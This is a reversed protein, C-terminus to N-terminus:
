INGLEYEKEWQQCETYYEQIDAEIKTKNLHYYALGLYIQGLSLHPYEQAIEEASMGSKYDMALNQVTMRTGALRPKGGSYVVKNRLRELFFQRLM